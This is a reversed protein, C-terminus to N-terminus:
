IIKNLIFESLLILFGFFLKYYVFIKLGKNSFYRILFSISLFSTIFSSILAIFLPGYYILLNNNLSSFIEVFATISIAPIGLLFSFKAADVRNWGLLIAATITIGSRSTGPIIALAQALGIFFINFSKHKEISFNKTKVLESQYMLLGTFISIIGIILNSRLFSNYFDPIIFKFIAGFLLLPITGVLISVFFKSHIFLNNKLNKNMLKNIDKKFFILLAAVSGIQIIASLSPGPDELRFFQSLIKLHASSSIPLFETFGQILGYIFYKFYNM